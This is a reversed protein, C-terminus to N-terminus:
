KMFPKSIRWAESIHESAEKLEKALKVRGRGVDGDSDRSLKESLKQLFDALADYKLDGINEVLEYMTGNYRDITELHDKM